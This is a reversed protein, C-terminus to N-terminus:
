YFIRQFERLAPTPFSPALAPRGKKQLNKEAIHLCRKKKFFPFSPFRTKQKRPWVLKWRKKQFRFHRVSIQFIPHVSVKTLIIKRLRCRKRSRFGSRKTGSRSSTRLVSISFDFFKRHHCDASDCSELRAGFSGVLWWPNNKFFTHRLFLTPFTPHPKKPKKTFHTNGPWEWFRYKKWSTCIKLKQGRRLCSLFALM